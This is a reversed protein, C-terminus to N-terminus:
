PATEVHVDSLDVMKQAQHRYVIVVDHTATEAGTVLDAHVTALESGEKPSCTKLFELWEVRNVEVYTTDGATIVEPITM